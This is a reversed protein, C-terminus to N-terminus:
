TLFEANSCNECLPDTANDPDLAKGCKCCETPEDDALDAATPRDDVWRPPQFRFLRVSGDPQLRAEAYEPETPM